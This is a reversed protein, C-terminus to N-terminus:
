VFFHELADGKSIIFKNKHLTGKETMVNVTGCRSNEKLELTRMVTLVVVGPGKSLLARNVGGGGGWM